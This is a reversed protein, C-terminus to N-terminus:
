NLGNRDRLVQLNENIKFIVMILECYVRLILIGLAGGILSLILFFLAALIGGFSFSSLAVLFSGVATLGGAGVTILLILVTGVIYIIKILRSTIFEDFNFLRTLSSNDKISYDNITTM